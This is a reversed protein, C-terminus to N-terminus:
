KGFTGIVDDDEGPEIVNGLGDMDDLKKRTFRLVLLLVVILLGLIIPILFASM